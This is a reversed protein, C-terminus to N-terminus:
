IGGKTFQFCETKLDDTTPFKQYIEALNRDYKDFPMRSQKDILNILEASFEPSLSVARLAKIKGTNAEVLTIQMVLRQEDSEQVPVAREAEPLLHISFPQDSWPIDTGFRYLLFIVDEIMLIGFECEAKKVALIEAFSPRNFFMILEPVGKRVNFQVAENWKKINPNYLKGVEYKM